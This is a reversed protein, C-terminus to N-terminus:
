KIAFKKKMNKSHYKILWTLPIIKQIYIKSLLILYSIRWKLTKQKKEIQAIERVQLTINMSSIGEKNDYNCVIVNIHQFKYGNHFADYFFKADACIKYGTDFNNNKLISTKVFFAQHCNPMYALTSLIAKDIYVGYHFFRQSDGYIISSQNDYLEFLNQLVNTDYFSDGSNMFNIWEGSVKDIGKNMANYIGDDHESVWYTIKDAYKKIINTTGDTSGGDIIIYEFNSYQQNIVSLITEEIKSVDNYVVTIISVKPQNKEQM